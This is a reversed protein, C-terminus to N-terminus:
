TLRAHFRCLTQLLARLDPAQGRAHSAAGDHGPRRLQGLRVSTDPSDLAHLTNALHQLYQAPAVLRDPPLGALLGTDR